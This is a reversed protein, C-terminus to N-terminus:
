HSLFRRVVKMSVALWLLPLVISLAVLCRGAIVQDDPLYFNCLRVSDSQYLLGVAASMWCFGGLFFLKIVVNARKLSDLLVMGLLFLLLFKFVSAVLSVQVQDLAKPLMWYAAALSALLLGPVGFEDFQRYQQLARRFFEPWCALRRSKALAQAACMGAFLIVPIHVLMHLVMSSTLPQVFIVALSLLIASALGYHAAPSSGALFAPARM